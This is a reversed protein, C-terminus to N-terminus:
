IVCNNRVNGATERGVPEPKRETTERGKDEPMGRGQNLNGKRRGM